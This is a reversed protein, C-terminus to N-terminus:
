CKKPDVASLFKENGLLEIISLLTFDEHHDSFLVLALQDHLCQIADIMCPELGGSQTMSVLEHMETARRAAHQAYTPLMRDALASIGPYIQASAELMEPLMENRRAVLAVELFLACMGKSLGGLLMKMASARGPECSLIKVRMADGFLSAIEQARHGSLFLTASSRLNKALGNISADVFGVGAATIRQAIAVILEPRVSNADVFIAGAPATRALETFRSATTEAVDPPVLSIVVNSERVVEQFSNLVVIGAERCRAASRPGRCELTTVVRLGRERLLLAVSAGMEGPSLIGITKTGDTM